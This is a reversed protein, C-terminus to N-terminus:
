LLKVLAAIMGSQALLLGIFWKLLDVKSTEIDDKKALESDIITKLTKAPVEAQEETFGVVCLEKVYQHTDFAIM